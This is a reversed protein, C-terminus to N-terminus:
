FNKEEGIVGHVVGVSQLDDRIACEKDGMSESSDESEQNTGDIEGRPDALPVELEM